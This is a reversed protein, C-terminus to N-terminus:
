RLMPAARVVIRHAPESPPREAMRGIARLANRRTLSHFDPATLAILRELIADDAVVALARAIEETCDYGSAYLMTILSHPGVHHVRPCAPTPPPQPPPPAATTLILALFLIAPTTRPIPM